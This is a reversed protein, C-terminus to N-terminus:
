RIKILNKGKDMTLIILPGYNYWYIGFHIILRISWFLLPTMILFLTSYAELEWYISIEKFASSLNNNAKLKALETKLTKNEEKLNNNEEKLENNLDREKAVDLGALRLSEKLESIKQEYTIEHHNPIEKSAEKAATKLIIDKLNTNETVLNNIQGKQNNLLIEARKLDDELKTYLLDRSIYGKKAGKTFKVPFVAGSVNHSIKNDADGYFTNTPRLIIELMWPAISPKCTINNADMINKAIFQPMVVGYKSLHDWFETNPRELNKDAYPTKNQLFMSLAYSYKQYYQM